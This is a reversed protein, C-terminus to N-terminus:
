LGGYIGRNLCRLKCRTRSTPDWARSPCVRRCRESGQLERGARHPYTTGVQLYPGPSEDRDCAVGAGLRLASRYLPPSLRLAPLASEFREWTPDDCGCVRKCVWPRVRIESM